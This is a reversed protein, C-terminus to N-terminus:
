KKEIMKWDKYLYNLGDQWNLLYNSDHNRSPVIEYTFDVLESDTEKFLNCFSEFFELQKPQDESGMSTYITKKTKGSSLLNDVKNKDYMDLRYPSGSLFRNFTEHNSLFTYMTFNGSMSYGVLIRDDNTRYKKDIYPVLEKILFNLFNVGNQRPDLDFHRDINPIGVVIAEPIEESDSKIDVVSSYTRFIVNGDLTYHVAYSTKTEEYNKPLAIFIEREQNLIDSKLVVKEGICIPKTSGQALLSLSMLFLNISVLNKLKKM